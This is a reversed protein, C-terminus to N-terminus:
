EKLVVLRDGPQIYDGELGNIQKVRDVTTYYKKAISWLTDEAKVIYGIMGPLAKKKNVDIPTIDVNLVAKALENSFALVELSIEAKIEIQNENLQMATIQDFFPVISYTIDEKM